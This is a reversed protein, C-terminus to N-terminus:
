LRAQVGSPRIHMRMDGVQQMPHKGEGKGEGPRAGREDGSQVKQGLIPGDDEDLLFERTAEAFKQMALKPDVRSGAKRSVFPSLLPFDSFSM